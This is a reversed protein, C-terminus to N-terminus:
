IIIEIQGGGERGERGGERGGEREGERGVEERGREGGEGTVLKWSAIFRRVMTVGRRVSEEEEEEKRVEM